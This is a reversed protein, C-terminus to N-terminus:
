GFYALKSFEGISMQGYRYYCLKYLVTQMWTHSGESDIRFEGNDNKFSKEDKEAIRAMWMFKAIDDSSYTVMGGFTVMVYDVDRRLM